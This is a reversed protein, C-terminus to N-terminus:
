LAVIVILSLVYPAYGSNFKRETLYKQGYIERILAYVTKAVYSNRLNTTYM